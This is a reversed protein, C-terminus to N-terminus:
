TRAMVLCENHGAARVERCLRKATERSPVDPMFIRYFKEKANTVFEVTTLKYDPSVREGVLKALRDQAAFANKRSRYSALQIRFPTVASAHEMEALTAATKWVKDNQQIIICDAHGAAKFIDCIDQAGKRTEVPATRIRYNFASPSGKPSRRVLIELEAAKDGLLKKLVMQGKEAGKETRFSALQVRVPVPVPREIKLTDWLGDNHKIVLCGDHGNAKIMGCLKMGEDRTEVPATRIRFDFGTAGDVRSKRVFLQLKEVDEQLIAALVDQGRAAHKSTRYSALQIRYPGTALDIDPLTVPSKAMMPTTPDSLKAMQTEPMKAAPKAMPKSTPKSAPMDAPKAPPTAAMGNPIRSINERFKNMNELMKPPLVKDEKRLTDMSNSASATTTTRPAEPKASSLDPSVAASQTLDVESLNDGPEANRLFALLETRNGRKAMDRMRSYLARNQSIESKSVGNERLTASAADFRGSMGYVFALNQQHRDTSDPHAAVLEMQSMAEDYSESVVLSLALNNRASVTNPDLTLAARYHRQAGTGDGKLDHAVGLKNHLSASPVQALSRNFHGIADEFAGRSVLVTGLGELASASAPDVKVAKRYATEAEHMKGVALNAEGLGILPIPNSPVSEHVATFFRTATEYDKNTMANRAVRIRIKDIRALEQIKVKGNSQVAPYMGSQEGQLEELLNSCATVSIAVLCFLSGRMVQRVFHRM